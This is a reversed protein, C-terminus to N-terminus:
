LAVAEALIRKSADSKLGSAPVIDVPTGLIMEAASRMRGLAVLGTSDDVEVLLDVDSGDRDTGRAVSGFVRIDSAGLNELTTRLHERHEDLLTQLQSKPIPSLTLTLDFGAAKVM